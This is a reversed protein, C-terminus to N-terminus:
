VSRVLHSYVYEWTIEEEIGSWDEDIRFVTVEKYGEAKLEQAYEVADKKIKHEGIIWPSEGFGKGNKDKYAIALM